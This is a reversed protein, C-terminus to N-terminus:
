MLRSRPAMAALLPVQTNLPFKGPLIRGGDVETKQWLTVRPPGLDMKAWIAIFKTM